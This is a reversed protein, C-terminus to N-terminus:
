HSYKCCLLNVKTLMGKMNSEDVQGFLVRENWSVGDSLILFIGMRPARLLLNERLCELAEELVADKFDFLEELMPLLLGKPAMEAGVRRGPVNVSGM